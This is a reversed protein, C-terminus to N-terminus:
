IQGNTKREDTSRTVGLNTIMTRRKAGNLCQLGLILGVWGEGAVGSSDFFQEDNM